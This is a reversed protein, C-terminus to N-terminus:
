VSITKKILYFQIAMTRYPDCFKEKIFLNFTNHGKNLSTENYEVYELQVTVQFTNCVLGGKLEFMEMRQGAEDHGVFFM